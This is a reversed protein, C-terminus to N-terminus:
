ATLSALMEIAVRRAEDIDAAARASVAVAKRGYAGHAVPSMGLLRARDHRVLLVGGPLETVSRHAPLQQFEVSVEDLFKGDEDGVMKARTDQALQDGTFRFTGWMGDDRDELAIARGIVIGSHGESMVKVRAPDKEAGRLAGRTFVERLGPFLEVEVEYPVLRATFGGSGEDTFTDVTAARVQVEPRLAEPLLLTM